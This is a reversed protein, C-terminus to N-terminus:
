KKIEAPRLGDFESILLTNGKRIHIVDKDYNGSLLKELVQFKGPIEILRGDLIKLLPSIYDCVPAMDYTGTNIIYFDTFGKYIQRLFKAAEDYGKEAILKEHCITSSQMHKIWSATVFIAGKPRPQGNGSLLIDICDMTRPVIIDCTSAVLNCTAKGCGSVCIVIEDAPQEDDANSNIIEQLTKNMKAPDSHLIPDLYTIKDKCGLREATTELEKQITICSYIKRTM